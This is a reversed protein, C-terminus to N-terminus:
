EGMGLEIAWRHCRNIAEIYQELMRRGCCHGGSEYEICGAKDVRFEIEVMAGDLTALQGQSVQQQQYLPTEGDDEFAEIRYVALKASYADTGPDGTPEYVGTYWIDRWVRVVPEPM